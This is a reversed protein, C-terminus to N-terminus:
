ELNKLFSALNIDKNSIGLKQRINKRHKEITLLSLSSEDAIEKSSMGNRIMNSIEIEKLTLNSKRDSINRGFSSTLKELNKKFLDINRASIHGAEFKRIMPMLLEDINSLVSQQIKMKEAEVQLLMERLAINKNGLAEKVKYMESLNKAVYVSGTVNGDKDKIPLASVLLPFGIRSNSVEATIPQKLKVANSHPCEHQPMDAGYFVEHCSQGILKEAPVGLVDALAKNVKVFRFKDDHVSVYDSMADFTNSWEIDAKVLDAELKIKKSIDRVVMIAKSRGQSLFTGLSIEVPFLQGDKKLHNFITERWNKFGGKMIKVIIHEKNGNGTFIDLVSMKLFQSKTYGYLEIASRNIEQFQLTEADFVMVADSEHEFLKRYKAECERLTEDTEKCGAYGGARKRDIVATKNM